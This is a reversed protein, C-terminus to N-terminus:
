CATLNTTVTGTTDDYTAFCALGSSDSWGVTTQGADDHFELNWGDPGYDPPYRMGSVWKAMDWYQSSPYGSALMPIANGGLSLSSPSGEALWKAHLLTATAQMNAALSQISARRADGKFSVLRPLAVTALIGVIVIVTVLEILTFGAQRGGSPAFSPPLSTIAKM